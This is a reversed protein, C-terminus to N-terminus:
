HRLLRSSTLPARTQTPVRTNRWTSAPGRWSARLARPCPLTLPNAPCGCPTESLVVSLDGIATLPTEAQACATHVSHPVPRSVHAESLVPKLRHATQEFVFQLQCLVSFGMLRSDHNSRRQSQCARYGAIDRRPHSEGSASSQQMAMLHPPYERRVRNHAGDPTHRLCHAALIRMPASMSSVCM